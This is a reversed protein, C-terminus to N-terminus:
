LATMASLGDSTPIMHSYASVSAREPASRTPSASSTNIRASRRRGSDAM